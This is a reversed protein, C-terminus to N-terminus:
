WGGYNMVLESLVETAEFDLVAACEGPTPNLGAEEFYEYGSRTNFFSLMSFLLVLQGHSFCDLNTRIKEHDPRLLNKDSADQVGEDSEQHFLDPGLLLVGKKWAELFRGDRGVLRARILDRKRNMEEFVEFDEEDGMDCGTGYESNIM